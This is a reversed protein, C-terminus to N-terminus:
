AFLEAQKEEHPCEQWQLKFEETELREITLGSAIMEAVASAVRKPFEPTDVAASVICGCPKRGVYTHTHKSM